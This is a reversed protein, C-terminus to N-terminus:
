ITVSDVATQMAAASAELTAFEKVLEALLKQQDSLAANQTSNLKAVDQAFTQYKTKTVGIATVTDAVQQSLDRLSRTHADIDRALKDINTIINSIKSM